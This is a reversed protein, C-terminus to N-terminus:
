PKCSSISFGLAGILAIGIGTYNLRSFAEGGFFNRGTMIIGLRRVADCTGYSIPKVLSLFLFSLCYEVHYAAVAGLSLYLPPINKSSLATSENKIVVKKEKSKGGWQKFGFKPVRLSTTVIAFCFALAAMTTQAQLGCIKTKSLARKSFVNLSAQATASIVAALFGALEFTPSNWSAMAIGTAIQILTLLTIISPMAELGEVLLSILVTLIPIGCKSTYTLSIGLRDLAVVNFYNALFMFLASVKFESMMQIALKLRENWQSLNFNAFIGLLFSGMFRFITLLQPRTYYNLINFILSERNQAKTVVSRDIKEKENKLRSYFDNIKPKQHEDYKLFSTSFYTTFIMSSLMWSTGVVISNQAIKTPVIVSSNINDILSVIM